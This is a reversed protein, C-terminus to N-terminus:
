RSNFVAMHDKLEHGWSRLGTALGKMVDRAEISATTSALWVETNLVTDLVTLGREFGAVLARPGVMLTWVVASIEFEGDETVQADVDMWKQDDSGFLHQLTRSICHQHFLPLRRFAAIVFATTDKLPRGSTLKKTAENINQLGLTFVVICRTREEQDSIQSLLVRTCSGIEPSLNRQVIDIDDAKNVGPLRRDHEVIEFDEDSSTAKDMADAQHEM